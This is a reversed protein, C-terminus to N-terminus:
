RIYICDNGSYDLDSDFIVIEGNLNNGETQLVQFVENDMYIQPLKIKLYERLGEKEEGNILYCGYSVENIFQLVYPKFENPSEEKYKLPIERKGGLCAYPIFLANLAHKFTNGFDNDFFKIALKM